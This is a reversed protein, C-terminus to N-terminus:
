SHGQGSGCFAIKQWSDVLIYPYIFNLKDFGLKINLLLSFIDCSQYCFPLFKNNFLNIELLRSNNTSKIILSYKPVRAVESHKRGRYQSLSSTVSVRMRCLNRIILAFGVSFKFSIVSM